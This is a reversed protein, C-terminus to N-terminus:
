CPTPWIACREAGARRNALARPSPVAKRNRRRSRLNTQGIGIAISRRAASAHRSHIRHDTGVPDKFTRGRELAPTSDSVGDGLPAIVVVLRRGVRPSQNVTASPM